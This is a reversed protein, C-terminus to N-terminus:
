LYCKVEQATFDKIGLNCNNAEIHFIRNIVVNRTGKLNLNINDWANLILLIKFFSTGDSM